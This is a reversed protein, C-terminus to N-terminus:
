TQCKCSKMSLGHSQLVKTPTAEWLEKGLKLFEVIREDPHKADRYQNIVQLMFEDRPDILIRQRPQRPGLDDKPDLRPGCSLGKKM